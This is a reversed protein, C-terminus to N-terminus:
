NVTVSDAFFSPLSIENGLVAKYTYIGTSSGYITVRDDELIRTEGAPRVYLVYVINDYNGKTAIRMAVLTGYDSSEEMVQVVKGTFTYNKGEYSDPDRSMANYDINLYAKSVPADDAFLATQTEQDAIGTQSLGAERQFSKVASATMNGYAGDASGSLYSLEILRQQLLRVDEGNSGVQLSKYAVVIGRSELETSITEQLITLVDDSYESICVSLATNLAKTDVDSLLDILMAAQDAPELTSIFSLNASAYPVTLLFLCILLVFFKKLM